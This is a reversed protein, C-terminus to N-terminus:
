WGPMKSEDLGVVEFVATRTGGVAVPFVISLVTGDSAFKKVKTVRGSPGSGMGLVYVDDYRDVLCKRVSSGDFGGEYVRRWVLVGDPRFKMVISAAEVPNSYGSM